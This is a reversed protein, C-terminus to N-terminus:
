ATRNAEVLRDFRVRIAEEGGEVVDCVENRVSDIQLSGSEELIPTGGHTFAMIHEAGSTVVINANHTAVIVQRSEKIDRLASVVLSNILKNELDDEPQDLLLPEDGMRLIVALLAATKQGPSGRDVPALNAGPYPRYRVELLDEPAWLLIDTVLEFTDLTELFNFFKKPVRFTKAFDSATGEEVMSALGQRFEDVKSTNRPNRLSLNKFYAPLGGEDFVGDFADSRRFMRRLDHELSNLQAGRHVKVETSSFDSKLGEAYKSRREYLAHESERINTLDIALERKLDASAAIESKLAKLHGEVELAAKKIEAIGQGNLTDPSNKQLWNALEKRREIWHSAMGSTVWAERTTRLEEVSRALLARAKSIGQARARYETGIQTGDLADLKSGLEEVENEVAEASTEVQTVSDIKSHLKTYEKFEDTSALTEFAKMRGELDELKGQLVDVEAERALLQRLQERKRRFDSLLSDHGKQWEQKSVAPMEDLVHLFSQNETAMQFIQKQSYIRVPLRDRISGTQAVWEEGELRHIMHEAPNAGSWTVRHLMNGRLLDVEIQTTESWWRNRNSPEPSFRALEEAAGGRLESHRGLTLRLLEIITSKGVGRGGILCTMWQSFRYESKQGNHEISIKQIHDPAPKNPSVDGNKGRRISQKSDSLALRLGALNLEQVKLWTFHSGPYKPETPDTSGPAYIAEAPAKLHHMDSGLMAPLGIRDLQPSPDDSTIEIASFCQSERYKELERPDLEFIGRPGDAHAPICLGGLETVKEAIAQPTDDATTDSSGKTGRYRIQALLDDVRSAPHLPDFVALIHIGNHATVEVGPFITFANGIGLAQLDKLANRAPGIGDGTNHDAIVIGDIGSEIIKELWPLTSPKEGSEDGDSLGGFDFSAPSHVHIDLSQWRTGSTIM